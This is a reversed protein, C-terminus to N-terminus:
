PNLNKHHPPQNVATAKSQPTGDGLTFSGASWLTIKRRRKATPAPTAVATSSTMPRATVMPPECSDASQIPVTSMADVVVADAVVVVAAGVVVVVVTRAVVAAGVVVVDVTGGVTGGVVIRSLPTGTQGLYSVNGGSSPM